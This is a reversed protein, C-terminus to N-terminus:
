QVEDSFYKKGAQVRAIVEALEDPSTNKLVYGAAGQTTMRTVYSKENLTTLALIKLGPYEDALRRCM